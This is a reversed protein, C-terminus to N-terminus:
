LAQLQQQQQQATSLARLEYQAYRDYSSSHQEAAADLANM